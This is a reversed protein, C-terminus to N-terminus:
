LSYSLTLHYHYYVAFSSGFYAIKLRGEEVDVRVLEGVLFSEGKQLACGRYFLPAMLCEKYTQNTELGPTDIVCGDGKFVSLVKTSIEIPQITTGFADHVSIRKAEGSMELFANMLASKGVNTHGIISIKDSANTTNKNLCDVLEQLGSGTKASVFMAPEKYIKQIQGSIISLTSLPLLDIKNVVPIVRTGTGIDRELNQLTHQYDLVSSVHLVTNNPSTKISAYLTTPNPYHKATEHNGKM